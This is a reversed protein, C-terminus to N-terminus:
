RGDSGCGRICEQVGACAINHRHFSLEVQAISKEAVALFYARMRALHSITDSINTSYPVIDLVGIM